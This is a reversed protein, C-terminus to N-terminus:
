LLRKRQEEMRWVGVYQGEPEWNAHPSCKCLVRLLVLPWLDLDLFRLGRSRDRDWSTGVTEVGAWLRSESAKKGAWVGEMTFLLGPPVM